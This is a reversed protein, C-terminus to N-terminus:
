GAAGWGQERLLVLPSIGFVLITQLLTSLYSWSWGTSRTAHLSFGLHLVLLVVLILAGPRPWRRVVLALGVFLGLALFSVLLVLETLDGHSGRFVTLIPSMVLLGQVVLIRFVGDRAGWYQLVYSVLFVYTVVLRMTATGLPWRGSGGQDFGWFNVALYDLTVVAVAALVAHFGARHMIGRSWEDADKLLGVERLISPLFVVLAIFSMLTPELYKLFVALIAVGFAMWDASPLRRMTMTNMM